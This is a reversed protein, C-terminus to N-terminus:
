IVKFDIVDVLEDKFYVKLQYNGSTKPAPFGRGLLGEATFKPYAFIVQGTVPNLMEFYVEGSVGSKMSINLNIGDTTKFEVANVPINDPGPPIGSKMKQLELKKFYSPWTYVPPKKKCLSKECIYDKDCDEYTNCPENDKGNSCINNTCFTTKCDEIISCFSGPNGSSCAQNICTLGAACAGTYACQEGEGAKRFAIFGIGALLIIIISFLIISIINKMFNYLTPL